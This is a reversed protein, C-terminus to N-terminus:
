ASKVIRVAPIEWYTWGGFEPIFVLSDMKSVKTVFFISGAPIPDDSDSALAMFERLLQYKGRSQIRVARANSQAVFPEVPMTAPNFAFVKPERLILLINFVSLAALSVKAILEALQPNFVM